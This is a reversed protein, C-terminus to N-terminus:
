AHRRAFYTVGDDNYCRCHKELIAHIQADNNTPFYPRLQELKWIRKKEFMLKIQENRDAPLDYSPFYEIVEPSTNDRILAIGYLYSPQTEIEVPVSEKWADLFQKLEMSEVTSLLGEAYLRSIEKENLHWGQGDDNAVTFWKFWSEIVSILGLEELDAAAEEVSITNLNNARIERVIRDTLNILYNVSLLRLFGDIECVHLQKLADCLQQENSPIALLLKDVTWQQKSTSKGLGDYIDDNLLHRIMKGCPVYCYNTTLISSIMTCITSDQPQQEDNQKCTPLKTRRPFTLRTPLNGRIYLKQGSKVQALLNEPLEVLKYSQPRYPQSLKLKQMRASAIEEKWLEMMNEKVDKFNALINDIEEDSM